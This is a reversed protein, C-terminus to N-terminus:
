TVRKTAKFIVLRIYTFYPLLVFLLYALPLLPHFAQIKIMVWFLAMFVIGVSLWVSILYPFNRYCKVFINKVWHKSVAFGYSMGSVYDLGLMLVVIFVQKVSSMSAQSVIIMSGAMVPQTRVYYLLLVFFLACQIVTLVSFRGLYKFFGQHKWQHNRDILHTIYWGLSQLICYLVLVFFMMYSFNLLITYYYAEAAQNAIMIKGLMEQSLEQELSINQVLNILADVSEILVIYYHDVVRFCAWVFIFDIFVILAVLSKKAKFAQWAKTLDEKLAKM